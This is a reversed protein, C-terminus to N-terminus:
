SPHRAACCFRKDSYLRLATAISSTGVVRRRLTEKTDQLPLPHIALVVPHSRLGSCIDKIVDLPAVNGAVDLIRPM